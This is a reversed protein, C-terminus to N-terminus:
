PRLQQVLALGERGGYAQIVRCPQGALYRVFLDILGENDDIVLITAGGAPICVLVERIDDSDTVQPLPWRLREALQVVMSDGAFPANPDRLAYRLVLVAMASSAALRVSLSGAGADQIARSLL